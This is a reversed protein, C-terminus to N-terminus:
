VNMMRLADGLVKTADRLAEPSAAGFGLVLGQKRNPGLYCSSLTTASVGRQHLHWVLGEEDLTREFLVPVHLGGDANLVRLAAGCNRVLGSLLANRRELYINRMRRLHRAFHGEGIFEALALQLLSPPFFDFARREALFRECLSRPVVLYGIRAAPYLAKSFTGIYITRDHPDMGQLAGLPRSVYRFESDYDDELIWSRNRQAWEILALRRGASMSVGLPYQHSPTVYVARVQRMSAAKKRSAGRLLQEPNVGEDDVPMRVVRLHRSEFAMQAGFYGPEEIGIRDGPSLLVAVALQLAAQSGSVIIVQDPECKVARAARLHDAVAERLAPLGAPNGYSMQALSLSRAHRAVIRGWLTHPFEDLAPVGIQFAGFPRFTPFMPSPVPTSPAADRPQPRGGSVGLLEDPLAENVFTGSGTRGTLYGEHLLQEYASLVPFRSVGLEMALSRTSPLRQGRRLRGELIAQRVGDYVQRHLAKKGDRSVEFLSFTTM